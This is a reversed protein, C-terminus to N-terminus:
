KQELEDWAQAPTVISFRASAADSRLMELLDREGSILWHAASVIALEVFVDDDVDRCRRPIPGVEMWIASRKLGALYRDRAAPSTYRLFKPRALRTELERSTAHCFVFRSELVLLEVLRGATGFPSLLASILVNTDAVVCEVKM